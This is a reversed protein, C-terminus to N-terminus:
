VELPFRMSCHDIIRHTVLEPDSFEEYCRGCEQVGAENFKKHLQEDTMKLLKVSKEYNEETKFLVNLVDLSIPWGTIPEPVNRFM